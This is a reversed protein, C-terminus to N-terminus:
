GYQETIGYRNNLDFFFLNNQLFFSDNKLLTPTWKCLFDVARFQSKIELTTAFVSFSTIRYLAISNSAKIKVAIVIIIVM